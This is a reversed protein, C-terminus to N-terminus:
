AYDDRDGSGGVWFVRWDEQGRQVWGYLGEDPKRQYTGDGLRVDELTITSDGSATSNSRGLDSHFFGNEWEGGYCLYGTDGGLDAQAHIPMATSKGKGKIESLSSLTIEYVEVGEESFAIVQLFSSSMGMKSDEPSLQRQCIRTCVNTPVCSWQFTRYPPTSAISAPLPHPLLHSQKGRTLIYMTQSFAPRSSPGPLVVRSPPIWIAKHEKHFGKSSSGDWSSRSKRITSASPPGFAAAPSLSSRYNNVPFNEDFLEVEGVASDALRIVGAKKDFIVFLCLQQPYLSMPRHNLSLGKSHRSHSHSHGHMRPSADSPSRSMPDQVSQHVFTARRVSLPTYFEKVFRFAREGKPTEYVFINNKVMIALYAGGRTRSNEDRWLAYSLVPTNVLRSGASALPVYDTAWRLPLDEIVDWSSDVTSASDLTDQRYVPSRFPTLTSQSDYSSPLTSTSQLEVKTPTPSIGSVPSDLTLNRLGKPLSPRSKHKKPSVTQLPRGSGPHRLDLPRTGRQVVAWKALSVLSSLTYMRVTRLCEQDKAVDGDPGVLALVVGQPTGDGHDEAELINMQYVGEGVWIPRAEADNPGREVLGTETWEKPYMDLVSLGDDHGILLLRDGLIPLLCRIPSTTHPLFRSGFQHVQLRSPLIPEGISASPASPPPLFGPPTVPLTIGNFATQIQLNPHLSSSGGDCCGGSSSSQGVKPPTPSGLTEETDQGWGKQRRRQLDDPTLDAYREAARKEIWERWRGFRSNPGNQAALDDYTPLDDGGFPDVEPVTPIEGPRGGSTTNNSQM